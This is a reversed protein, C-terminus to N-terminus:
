EDVVVSENRIELVKEKADAALSSCKNPDGTSAATTAEELTSYLEFLDDEPVRLVKDSM